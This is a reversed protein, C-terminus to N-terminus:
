ATKRNNIILIFSYRINNENGNFNGITILKSTDTSKNSKILYKVFYHYM